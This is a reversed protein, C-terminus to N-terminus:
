KGGEKFEGLAEKLDCVIGRIIIDDASTVADLEAYIARVRGLAAEARTLRGHDIPYLPGAFTGPMDNLSRSSRQGIVWARLGTWKEIKVPETTGRETYWYVGEKTPRM